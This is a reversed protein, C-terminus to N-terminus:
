SPPGLQASPALLTRTPGPSGVDALQHTWRDPGCRVTATIARSVPTGTRTSGATFAAWVGGHGWDPASQRCNLLLILAVVTRSGKVSVGRPQLRNPLMHM